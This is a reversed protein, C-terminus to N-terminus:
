KVQTTWDLIKFVTNSVSIMLKSLIKIVSTKSTNSIKNQHGASIDMDNEQVLM